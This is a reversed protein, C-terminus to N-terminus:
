EFLWFLIGSGLGVIFFLSGFTFQIFTKKTVGAEIVAIHPQSPNYFLNVRTKVPYKNVIKNAYKLNSSSIGGGGFFITDGTLIQGNVQYSFNVIPRYTTGDGDTSIQIESVTVTGMTTPWSSSAQALRIQTIGNMMVAVGVAM